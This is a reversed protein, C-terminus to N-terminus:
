FTQVFTLLFFRSVLWCDSLKATDLLLTSLLTAPRIASKVKQTALTGDEFM